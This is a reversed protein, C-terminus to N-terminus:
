VMPSILEKQCYNIIQRAISYDFPIEPFTETTFWDADVIEIGDVKIDGSAYEAIFGIMTSNPFPWPQSDFYRVNKVKLGVEEAIERHVAEELTEGLEVFGAILSYLGEPFNANHALLIKGDKIIATIIAVSTHPFLLNGCEPCKKSKDANIPKFKAGCVGCFQHKRSWNLLQFASAAIGYTKERFHERSDRLTQFIYGNIPAFDEEVEIIHYAETSTQHILFSAYKTLLSEKFQKTNPLNLTTQKDQIMLADNKFILVFNITKKM